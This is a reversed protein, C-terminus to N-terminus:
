QAVRWVPKRAGNKHQTLQELKLSKLELKWINLGGNRNSNFVISHNDPSLSPSGDLGPDNTLQQLPKTQDHLWLEYNDTRNSSVIMKGQEAVAVDFNYLQGVTIQELQNSKPNVRWVDHSQGGDGSLFYIWLGDPSWRPEHQLWQMHTLQKLKSGDSNAVWIHNGDQNDATGYSFAIQKGDPSLVADFFGSVPLKIIDEKGTTVSLKALQGQIGNILLHKGDPYWSLSSKDYSSNSVARHHSGKEDMVFVQWYNNDFALYAIDSAKSMTSHALLLGIVAMQITSKLNFM